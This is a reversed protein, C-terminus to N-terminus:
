LIGNFSHCHLVNKCHMMIKKAFIQHTPPNFICNYYNGYKLPLKVGFFSIIFRHNFTDELAWRCQIKPFCTFSHGNINLNDSFQFLLLLDEKLWTIRIIYQPIYMYLVFSTYRRFKQFNIPKMLSIQYTNSFMTVFHFM